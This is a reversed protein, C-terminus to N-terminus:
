RWPGPNLGGISSKLHIYNLPLVGPRFFMLISTRIGGDVGTIINLGPRQAQDARQRRRNPMYIGEVPIVIETGM